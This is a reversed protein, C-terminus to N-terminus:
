KYSTYSHFYAQVRRKAIHIDIKVSIHRKYAIVKILLSIQKNTKAKKLLFRPAMPLLNSTAEPQIHYVTLKVTPM